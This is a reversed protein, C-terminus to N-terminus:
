AALGDRELTEWLGAPFDEEFWGLTQRVQGANRPGILVTTVAPHRLPYQIAAAALPM